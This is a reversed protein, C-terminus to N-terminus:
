ASVLERAARTYAKTVERTFDAQTSALTAVWEINSAGAVKEYGDAIQLVAKEYSTLYAASAKKGNEVAKDNLELVREAAGELSETVPNTKTQTAAM